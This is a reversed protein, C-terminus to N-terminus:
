MVCALMAGDAVLSAGSVFSAEDSLLWAVVDAARVTARRATAEGIGLGGGTISAAKGALGRLAMLM